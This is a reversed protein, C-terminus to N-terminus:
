ALSSGGFFSGVCIGDDLFLNEEDLSIWLRRGRYTSKEGQYTDNLNMSPMSESDACCVQLGTEKVELEFDGVGAVLRVPLELECDGESPVVRLVVSETDHATGLQLDIDSAKKAWPVMLTLRM